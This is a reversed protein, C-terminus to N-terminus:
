NVLKNVLINAAAGVLTELLSVNQELETVVVQKRQIEAAPARNTQMVVLQQRSAALRELAYDLISKSYVVQERTDEMTTYYLTRKELFVNSFRNDAVAPCNGMVDGHNMHAKVANSSVRINVGPENKNDPKHCISVKEQKRIKDRDKFTERDWKYGDDNRGANANDNRGNNGKDNKDANKGNNGNNGNNANNGSNGKDGKNGQNNNGNGKVQGSNGPQDKKVAKDEKKGQGQNQKEEKQGSKGQAVASMGASMVLLFSAIIILQKKM